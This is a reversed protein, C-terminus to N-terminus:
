GSRRSHRDIIRQYLRLHDTVMRRASFHNEVADRCAVPDLEGVRHIAATMAQEDGCIFGTRGNEVIESVAGRPFAIVPTGCALAELLVMGFPERWSIPFLLCRARSLLDLKREHPVEGVYFINDEDNVYPKVESEFYEQESPSRMKGALVLPVGALRAARIARDAGKEPALRGLFLCYDRRGDHFPFRSANLGHHIVSAVPLRSGAECQSSSIAITPVRPAIRRYVLGFEGDLTGHMTTVTPPGARLQAYVPGTVTHDHVIDTEGVVDYADMVHCLEVEVQGIRSGEAEPLLSHTKVPCASDGTACLLVDHGADHFGVALEHIVAEIGGYLPPPVPTWPPAILGIRM